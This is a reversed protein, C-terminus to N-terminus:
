SLALPLLAHVIADTSLHAVMAHELGHKWFLWGFIVGPM